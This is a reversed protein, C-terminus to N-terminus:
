PSSFGYEALIAQADDGLLFEIFAASTEAEGSDALPAIPYEAVVNIEEPIEVLAADDGAAFVDTVYVIGADAEGEVVKSAVGRVNQEFSDPTVTVGANAFVENAYNGCPVEEACVVVTLDEDVLDEVGTIGEPNDPAVIIALLNNAFIVPEAGELDEDTLKTMNNQDASAFVDGPAGEILQQVLASSGDFSLEVDADPNAEEFAAAVDTFADTLSAAAFVTIDGDAESTGAGGPDTGATTTDAGDGAETTDSPDPADTTDAGDTKDTAETTDTGDTTDTVDTTATVDTTDAANDDGDDGCAAAVLTLSALVPALRRTIM